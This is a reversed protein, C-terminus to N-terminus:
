AVRGNSIFKRNKFAWSYWLKKFFLYKNKSALWLNKIYNIKVLKFQVYFVFAVEVINTMIIQLYLM